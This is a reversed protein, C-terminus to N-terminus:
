KRDQSTIYITDHKIRYNFPSAFSLASLAQEITIEDFQGKFKKNNIEEDMIIIRAGYRRELKVAISEFSENDFILRNDKWSTFIEPDVGRRLIIKSEPLPDRRGTAADDGIAAADGPKITESAPGLEGSDKYYTIQQKPELIVGREHESRSVLLSGSVLTAQIIDESPYSKVNFSTGLAVINLQSTVVTFPSHHDKSVSFYGEGELYVTRDRKGFSRSYSLRSQANLWVTTGDTLTINGRSGNPIVIESLENEHFDITSIIFYTIVSGIALFIIGTAAWKLTTRTMAAIGGSNNLKRTGPQDTFAKFKRYAAQTDVKKRNLAIEFANWLKERESFEKLNGSNEGLWENLLHEDRSSSEGALYRAILEATKEKMKIKELRYVVM